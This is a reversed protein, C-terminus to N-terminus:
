AVPSTQYVKLQMPLIPPIPLIAPLEHSPWCDTKWHGVCPPPPQYRTM